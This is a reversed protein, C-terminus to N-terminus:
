GARLSCPALRDRSFVSMMLSLLRQVSCGVEKRWQEHVLMSCMDGLWQMYEAPGVTTTASGGGLTAESGMRPLPSVSASASASELAVREQANCGSSEFGETGVHAAHQQGTM